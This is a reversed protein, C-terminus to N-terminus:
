RIYQNTKPFYEWGSCNGLAYACRLQYEETYPFHGKDQLYLELMYFREELQTFDTQKSFINYIRDYFTNILRLAHNESIGGGVDDNADCYNYSQSTAKNVAKNIIQGKTKGGLRDADIKVDNDNIERDTDCFGFPCIKDNYNLDEISGATAMGLTILLMGIILLIKMKM